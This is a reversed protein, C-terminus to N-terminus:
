FSYHGHKHDLSRLRVCKARNKQYQYSM